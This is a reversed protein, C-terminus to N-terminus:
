CKLRRDFIFLKTLSYNIHRDFSEITLKEIFAILVISKIETPNTSKTQIPTSHVHIM